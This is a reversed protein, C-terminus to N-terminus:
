EVTFGQLEVPTVLPPYGLNDLLFRICAASASIDVRVRRFLPGPQLVLQNELFPNLGTTVAPVTVSGVTGGGSNIATATMSPTEPASCSFAFGFAALSVDMGFDMTLQGGPAGGEIGPPDVFNQPPPGPAITCDTSPTGNVSYGFVTTAGIPAGNLTTLDNITTGLPFEPETFVIPGAVDPAHVRPTRTATGEPVKWPDDQGRAALPSLLLLGVLAIMNKNMVDDKGLGTANARDTV